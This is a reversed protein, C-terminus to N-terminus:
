KGLDERFLWFGLAECEGQLLVRLSFITYVLDPLRLHLHGLQTNGWCARQNAYDLTISACGSTCAAFQGHAAPADEQVGWIHNIVFFHLARREREGCAGSPLLRV